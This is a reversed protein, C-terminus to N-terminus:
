LQMREQDLKNSHRKAEEALSTTLPSDSRFENHHQEYIRALLQRGVTSIFTVGRIDLCLTRKGLSQSVTQWTQEFEGLSENAIRGELKLTVINPLDEVSIRLM